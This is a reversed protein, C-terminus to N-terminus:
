MKEPMEIGLLFMGKKLRNAVRNSIHLRLSKKEETEANLIRHEHYFRHYEKALDYCYNALTSPDYTEAAERVTDDFLLCTRLLGKEFATLDESLISIAKPEDTKRMISRIRVYANQIYPGTNGQLDLSEKPNFVMRKVPNVKLIFYKLAAMAIQGASKQREEETMDTQEGREETTKAAESELEDMLDDADVVTGERSKMKGDPLDVMGYSLHHLGDAYPEGLRKLILFLAQFHYDQENAVTYIMRDMGHQQSRQHATGIDQTIYVSTGDSRLVIKEDLGEPSLDVWVSGDEKRFFTGSSIGAEVMDRGLLYTDSEYDTADFHVGLRRYTEDFGQYVWNNMKTWLEITASEGSEWSLLLDRAEAGITSYENFYKNKVRSFFRAKEEDDRSNRSYYEAAKESSQWEKYEQQFAEEFKVYYDGVFHDGKIGTSEPTAGDGFKQWALMSKCIAIGRNNVVQARVVEHGVAKLLCSVSWGLAINRIHGLHIPKNTNPSSYEVIIKQPQDTKLDFANLSELAYLWFDRTMSMNLFGGVAEYDMIQGAELLASGLREAIAPPATKCPGAYPFTVFTYEGNFSKTNLQISIDSSRYELEYFQGLLEAIKERISLLYKM